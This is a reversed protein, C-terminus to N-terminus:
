KYYNITTVFTMSAEREFNPFFFNVDGIQISIDQNNQWYTTTLVVIIRNQETHVYANAMIDGHSSSGVLQAGTKM